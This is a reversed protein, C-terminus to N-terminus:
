EYDFAANFSSIEVLRRIIASAGRIIPRTLGPLTLGAHALARIAAADIFTVARMDFVLRGPLSGLAREVEASLAPVTVVDLDGALAVTVTRGNFETLAAHPESAYQTM